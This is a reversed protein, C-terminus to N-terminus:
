DSERVLIKTPAERKPAPAHRPRPEHPMWCGSLPEFTYRTGGADCWTPQHFWFGTIKYTRGRYERQCSACGPGATAGSVLVVCLGALVLGRTTVM